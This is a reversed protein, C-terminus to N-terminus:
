NCAANCLEKAGKPLPCSFNNGSFDCFNDFRSFTLPPLLGSFKNGQVMLGELHLLKDLGSPIVGTFQNDNLTMDIVSTLGAISEPVTGTFSNSDMDLNILNSLGFISSPISGILILKSLDPCTSGAFDGRWLEGYLLMVIMSHLLLWAQAPMHWAIFYLLKGSFSNFFVTLTTLKKLSEFAEPLSGSFVNNDIEM